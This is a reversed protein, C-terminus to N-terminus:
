QFSAVSIAEFHDATVATIHVNFFTLTKGTAGLSEAIHRLNLYDVNDLREIAAFAALAFSLYSTEELLEYTLDVGAKPLNSVFSYMLYVM